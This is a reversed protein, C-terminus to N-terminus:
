KRQSLRMKNSMRAEARGDEKKLKGPASEKNEIITRSNLICVGYNM